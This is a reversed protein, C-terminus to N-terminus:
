LEIPVQPPWGPVLRMVVPWLVSGLLRGTFPSLLLILLLFPAFPYIRQYALAARPPLLNKLVHSGDLPPVPILNFFVLAVSFTLLTFLMHWVVAMPQSNWFGARWTLFMFLSVLLATALNAAVGALSVLIDDRRPHRFFMPNVPVPKAWGFGALLMCISGIPDLHALPDLTLRGQNKATADGCLYASWAHAFEHITLAFLLAPVRVLFFNLDLSQLDLM